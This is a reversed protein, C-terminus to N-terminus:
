VHAVDALNGRWLAVCKIAFATIGYFYIQYLVFVVVAVPLAILLSRLRVLSKLNLNTGSM